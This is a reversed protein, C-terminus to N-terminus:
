ASKAMRGGMRQAVWDQLDAAGALRIRGDLVFGDGDRLVIYGMRRAETVAAEVPDNAAPRTVGREAIFRAVAEDVEAQILRVKPRSAVSFGAMWNRARKPEIPAGERVPAPAAMVHAVKPQAAMVRPAMPRSAVPRPPAAGAGPRAAPKQGGAKRPAASQPAMSQAGVIVPVRGEKPAVPSPPRVHAQCRDQAAQRADRAAQRAAMALIAKAARAAASRTERTHFVVGHSAAAAAVTRRDRALRKGAESLTLGEGALAVLTEHTLPEGIRRMSTTIILGAAAARLKLTKETLRVKRAIARLSSDGLLTKVLSIIDPPLPEIERPQRPKRPKAIAPPRPKVVRPKRKAKIGLLDLHKRLTTPSVGLADSLESNSKGEVQVLHRLRAHDVEKVPYTRSRGGVLDLQDLNWRISGVTRNFLKALRSDSAGALALEKLKAREAPTMPQHPQILCKIVRAHAYIAAETTGFYAAMRTVPTKALRMAVFERDLKENWMVPM